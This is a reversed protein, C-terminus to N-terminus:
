VDLFKVEPAHRQIFERRPEVADGMLITFINEAEVADEMKVQLITRSEPNMTTGWLQEPNMEGLGKYRSIDAGKKGSERVTTLLETLFHLEKSIGKEESIFLVEPKEKEHGNNSLIFELDGSPFHKLVNIGSKELQKIIPEIEQAELMETVQFHKKKGNASIKGNGKPEGESEQKESEFKELAAVFEKESTIFETGAKSVIKYLPLPCNQEQRKTLLEHLSVGRRKIRLDFEVLKTIQDILDSLQNKTFAKADNGNYVPTCKINELGQNKLFANLDNETDLYDEKKGRKVRYLPPQAIYVFGDKILEPMQRFLFTLLLTRIHAGDVDADTMIILKHYRLKTIDFDEEGVGTGLATIITQIEENSLVKDLRAKEVNIIKGKLPLIAQFRRDRGQKASGGASDGEVLYIECLSPERESCDALKGPLGGGDMANKRRALNRAKRAAERAEAASIVKQAIKKAEKPNEEFYEGLGENVIAEVLGKVESNGLKAKTQGEFQPNSIKVSVVATLGERYDEGTIPIDNKKTLNNKKIYDNTTRTLASRFGILHTGGERTNINNAYSFLNEQYGDNYQFAIELLVSEDVGKETTLDKEKKFYVPQNHLVTKNKNLFNVFEKIGGEFLFTVDGKGDEREDRLIIEVGANLFALERLRNALIDFSFVLVEFIEPDPKFTIKTGTSKADGIIEPAAVAAGRKYSQHYIKGDRKVEVDLNESLANVCSVGVGHLGGSTKYSNNDFKGGAHLVTLVVEMATKDLYKDHKGVPIGRGEDIVTIRNDYHIIVEIHNGYGAMAEDISNDVVEYVLHHLGDPGTSGIYMAPRKRVAELGELVVINSENYTSPAKTAM